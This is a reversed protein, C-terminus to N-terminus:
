VHNRDGEKVSNPISEGDSDVDATAHDDDPEDKSPEPTLNGYDFDEEKFAIEFQVVTKESQSGGIIKSMSNMLSTIEENDIRVDRIDGNCQEILYALQALKELEASNM